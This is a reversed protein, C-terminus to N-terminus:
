RSPQEECSGTLPCPDEVDPVGDDDSDTLPCGANRASGTEGPCADLRDWVEDGDEDEFTCGVYEVSGSQGPCADESDIVGDSDLDASGFGGAIALLGGLGPDGRQPRTVTAFLQLRLSPTLPLSFGLAGQLSMRAKPREIDAMASAELAARADLFPMGVWVGASGAVPLERQEGDRRRNLGYGATAGAAWGLSEGEVGIGIGALARGQGPALTGFRLDSAMTGGASFGLAWGEAPADILLYRLRVDIQEPSTVTAEGIAARSWLQADIRLPSGFGSSVGVGTRIIDLRDAEGAGAAEYGSALRVVVPVDVPAMDNVGLLTGSASGAPALAQAAPASVLWAAM